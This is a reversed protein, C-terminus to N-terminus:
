LSSSGTPLIIVSLISSSSFFTFFYCFILTSHFQCSFTAHYQNAKQEDTKTGIRLYINFQLGISIIPKENFLISFM